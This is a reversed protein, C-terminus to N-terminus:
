AALRSTRILEEGCSGGLMEISVEDPLEGFLERDVGRRGRRRCDIGGDTQTGAPAVTTTRRIMM